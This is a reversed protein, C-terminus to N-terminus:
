DRGRNRTVLWCLAAGGIVGALFAVGFVGSAM